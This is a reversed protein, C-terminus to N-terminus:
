PEEIRTVALPRDAWPARWIASRADPEFTVVAWDFPLFWSREDIRRMASRRSPTWVVLPV